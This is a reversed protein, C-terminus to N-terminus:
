KVGCAEYITKRVQDAMAKALLPPVANGIQRFAANMAGYFQFGDPFSQLRAAERVSITRPQEYHIHSYSDKGLHAMLTRAPRDSEMKRWKNPFKNPDYPPVMKAELEKFEDSDEAIGQKQAEVRCLDSALAHARPYQDGEAMAAFIPYDRPLSRIVHDKVGGSSNAFSQWGERMLVAYPSPVVDPRYEELVSFHRAGRRSDGEKVPLDEIAERVTIVHELNPPVERQAQYYKATSPDIGKLAVRRANHYGRPLEFSTKPPPFVPDIALEEAIAILFLRERTQPVGYHVANVLTYRCRYGRDELAECVEEAVNHGGYNLADPVNEMLVALPQLGDVYELYKVYLKGREDLKFAEPHAAVERLKARGVRAYAQCPPGGAIVDVLMLPDKEPHLDKVFPIPDVHAINRPRGFEQLRDPHFNLAHTMAATPDVELAGILEFGAAHLGLSLGGCGAFLDIARLGLSPDRKIREIKKIRVLRDM